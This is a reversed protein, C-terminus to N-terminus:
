TGHKLLELIQNIGDKLQKVESELNNLRTEKRQEEERKLKAFQKEQKYKLYSTNDMNLIANSDIDRFFGNQDKVKTYKPKM